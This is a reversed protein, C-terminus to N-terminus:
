EGLDFLHKTATLSAATIEEDGSAFRESKLDVLNILNSFQTPLEIDPASTSEESSVSM